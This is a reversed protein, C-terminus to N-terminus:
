KSADGIPKVDWLKITKDLSGSALTKGDPSFVLSYVQDTHGNITATNMGSAVDWLKITRDWSASAVTKDDRSFIVCDVFHEHGKFTATNKGTALDWLKITCDESGSALTKGDQSFALSSVHHAHGRLKATNTRTTLDGLMITQVIKWRLTQDDRGVEAPAVSGDQEKPTSGNKGIAPHPIEIGDWTEWAVTRFDRSFAVPGSGHGALDFHGTRKATAM